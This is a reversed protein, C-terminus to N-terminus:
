CLGFLSSLGGFVVCGLLGRVWGGSTSRLVPVSSAGTGGPHQAGCAAYGVFSCRMELSPAGVSNGASTLNSSDSKPSEWRVGSLEFM